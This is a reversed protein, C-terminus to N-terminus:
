VLLALMIIRIAIRPMPEFGLSDTHYRHRVVHCLVPREAHLQSEGTTDNWWREM